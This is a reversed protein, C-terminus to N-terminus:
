TAVREVLYEARYPGYLPLEGLASARGRFLELYGPPIDLVARRRVIRSVGRIVGNAWRRDVVGHAYLMYLRMARDDSLHRAARAVVARSVTAYWYLHEPAMSPYVRGLRAGAPALGLERELMAAFAGEDARLLEFPVVLVREDGFAKRYLGLVYDYNLWDAIYSRYLDLFDHFPLDSGLRIVQSYVSRLAGAFGRTVILVRGEPYLRRLWECIRAQNARIPPSEGHVGRHRLLLRFYGDPVTLGGTLREESVVFLRPAQGASAAAGILDFVTRYGSLGGPAFAVQPHRGFWEPLWSSGATIYGM